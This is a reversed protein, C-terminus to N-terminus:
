LGVKQMLSTTLDIANPPSGAVASRSLVLCDCEQSLEDLARPLTAAFTSGFSLAMQKEADTATAKTLVDLVRTDKLRVLESVDILGIRMAPRRVLRDYVALGLSVIFLTLVIHPLLSKM